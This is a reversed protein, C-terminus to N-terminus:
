KKIPRENGRKFNRTIKALALQVERRDLGDIRKLFKQADKGKLIKVQKGRYSIFVKDDKTVRFDFVDEDFTNRKDITSM